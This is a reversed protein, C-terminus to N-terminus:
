VPQETTIDIDNETTLDSGSQTSLPTGLVVDNYLIQYAIFHNIQADVLPQAYLVVNGSVVAMDYNTVYDGFVMTSTGTFQINSLDNRIVSTITMTTSDQTSPNFSNIQFIGETFSDAPYSFIEQLDTGTTVSEITQYGTGYLQTFNNNIKQFAVRLPDGSGDNPLTGINIIEQAM